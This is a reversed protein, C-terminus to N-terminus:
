AVTAAITAVASAITVTITVTITITITLHYTATSLLAGLAVVVEGTNLADGRVSELRSGTPLTRKM